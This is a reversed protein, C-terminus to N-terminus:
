RFFRVEVEEISSDEWVFVFRATIWAIFRFNQFVTSMTAVLVHVCPLSKSAAVFDRMVKLFKLWFLFYASEM